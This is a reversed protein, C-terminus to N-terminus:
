PCPAWHHLHNSTNRSASIKEKQWASVHNPSHSQFESRLFIVPFIVTKTMIMSNKENEQDSHRREALCRSSAFTRTFGFSGFDDEGRPYFFAVGLVLAQYAAIGTISEM